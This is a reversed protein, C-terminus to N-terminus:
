ALAILKTICEVMAVCNVGNNHSVRQVQVHEHVKWAKHLADADDANM